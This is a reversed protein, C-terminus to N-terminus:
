PGRSRAAAAPASGAKRRLRAGHRDDLVADIGVQPARRAPGLFSGAVVEVKVSVPGVRELVDRAVQVFRDLLVTEFEHIPVARKRPSGHIDMAIEGLREPLAVDVSPLVDLEKRRHEPVINGVRVHRKVRREIMVTLEVCCVPIWLRNSSSMNSRNRFQIRMEGRGTM